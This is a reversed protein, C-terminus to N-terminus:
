CDSWYVGECNQLKSQREHMLSDPRARLGPLVRWTQMPTSVGDSAHADVKLWDMNLSFIANRTPVVPFHMEITQPRHGIVMRSGARRGSEPHCRELYPEGTNSLQKCSRSLKGPCAICCQRVSLHPYPRNSELSKAKECSLNM